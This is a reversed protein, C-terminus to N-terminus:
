KMCGWRFSVTPPVKGRLLFSLLGFIRSAVQGAPSCQAWLRVYRARFHVCPSFFRVSVHINFPTSDHLSAKTATDAPHLNGPIANASRSFSTCFEAYLVSLRTKVASLIEIPVLSHCCPPFVSGEQSYPKRATPLVPV